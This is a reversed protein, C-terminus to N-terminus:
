DSQPTGLKHFYIKQFLTTQKLEEGKKVPAYSSYYFGSNDKLWASVGQRNPALTDPLDEGTVTNRVRWTTRDSGAESVGYAWLKGDDTFNSGNLAATGDARLKNPDFFITGPDDISKARYWVSQNQLGDNKTYIYFGDAIKAPAGFREYNTLETLRDKIKARQPVSQIYADTIKNEAEIWSKMEATETDEMWRYPDAVSTGHFNDVQDGRRPKPYDFKQAPVASTLFACIVLFFLARKFM